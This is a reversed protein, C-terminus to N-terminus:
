QCDAAPKQQALNKLMLEVKQPDRIHRFGLEEVHHRDESDQWDRKLIIVDGTGDKNEKRYVDQLKEPQEIWRITEMPELERNVREQLKQPIGMYPSHIEEKGRVQSEFSMVDRIRWLAWGLAVGSLEYFVFLLSLVALILFVEFWLPNQTDVPEDPYEKKEQEGFVTGYENANLDQSQEYKQLSYANLYYGTLISLVVIFSIKGVRRYLKSSTQNKNKKM